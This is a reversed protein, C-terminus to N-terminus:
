EIREALATGIGTMGYGNGCYFLRLKGDEELVFPYECMKNAWKGDGDGASPALALNEGPLGREWNLGDDSRAECLSYAGFRSGIAAYIARWGRKTQWINLAINAANEYDAERRPSLVVRKDFWTLGDHSHAIVAHKEQDISLDPSTKGVALTHHMRYLINGNEDPMELIPAGGGAIGFNDPWRDFGTGEIIPEDSEKKWNLLDTSTALGIGRFSQLGTGVTCRGTYYLHWKDKFKHLCPLVAWFEDFSGKAGLEFLPGLRKWQTVDDVPAIALCIHRENKENGGAYYMWYEDGQRLVFPNMCATSDFTEGLPFIPNRTDRQWKHVQFSM